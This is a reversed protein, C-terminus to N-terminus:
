VRKKLIIDKKLGKIIALKLFGISIASRQSTPYSSHKKSTKNKSRTNTKIAIGGCM